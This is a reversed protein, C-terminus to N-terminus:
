SPRALSISSGMVSDSQVDNQGNLNVDLGTTLGQNTLAKMRRVELMRSCPLVANSSPRAGVVRVMTRVMEVTVADVPQLGFGDSTEHPELQLLLLVITMRM